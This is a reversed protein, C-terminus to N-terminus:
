RKKYSFGVEIIRRISKRVRDSRTEAKKAEDIYEIYARQHSPPYKEFIAKAKKNKSLAAALDAPIVPPPKIGRKM